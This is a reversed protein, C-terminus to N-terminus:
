VAVMRELYPGSFDVQLETWLVLHDSMQRRRWQNRYYRLPNSPLVGSATRLDGAYDSFKEDTYVADFFDVVGIQHPGAVDDELAFVIQDYFRASRGVNTPPVDSRRHPIRFGYDEFAESAMGDQRFMNFDGLLILNGSWTGTHGRRADLFEALQRIEEVRVPHDAQEHGWMIHVTAMTFQFWATKFGVVFPTRAIQRPSRTRGEADIVPPLVLEGALGAHRIKRIDYLYALREHNGADGETVDSVLYRWWPGLLDCVKDLEGLDRKVEQVAIVDFRSLVEAIYWFSEEYRQSAGFSQINWTALLLREHSSKRPVHNSSSDDDLTARLDLLNRATRAPNLAGPDGPARPYRRAYADFRYHFAM